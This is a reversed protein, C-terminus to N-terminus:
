QEFILLCITIYTINNVSIIYFISSNTLCIWSSFYRGFTEHVNFTWWIMISFYLWLESVTKMICYDINVLSYPNKVLVFLIYLTGRYPQLVCIRFFQRFLLTYIIYHGNWRNYFYLSLLPTSQPNKLYNIIPKQIWMHLMKLYSSFLLRAHM